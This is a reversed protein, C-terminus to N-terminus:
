LITDFSNQQILEEEDIEDYASLLPCIPKNKENERIIFYQLAPAFKSQRACNDIHKILCKEIKVINNYEPYFKWFRKLTNELELASSFMFYKNGFGIVQKKGIKSKLFEGLRIYIGKFDVDSKVSKKCKALVEEGKKTLKCEFDLYGMLKYSTYDLNPFQYTAGAHAITLTFYTDFDIGANYIQLLEEIKM